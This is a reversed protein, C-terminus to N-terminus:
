WENYKSSHWALSPRSTPIMVGRTRQILKLSTASAVLYLNNLQLKVTLRNLLVLHM